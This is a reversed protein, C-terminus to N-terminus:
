LWTCVADLYSVVCDQWFRVTNARILEQLKFMVRTRTPVPTARWKPYAAKAAAVSRSFEEPTAQPLRSLVRQNAQAVAM